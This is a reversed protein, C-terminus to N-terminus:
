NEFLGSVGEGSRRKWIRVGERDQLEIYIDKANRGNISIEQNLELLPIIVFAREHMRPHPIILVEAEINEQNYLLIDLDLTRPGWKIGRDRGQNFEIKQIVSLLELPTLQTRIEVVMNLFSAQNIFGVPETEYISSFTIVELQENEELAAIAEKLFYARDEINSGVGIYVRNEM